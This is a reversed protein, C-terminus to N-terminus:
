KHVLVNFVKYNLYCDRVSKEKSKKVEGIGFMRADSKKEFKTPCVDWGYYSHKFKVQYYHKDM